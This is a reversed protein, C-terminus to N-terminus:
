LAFKKISFLVKCSKVTEMQRRQFCMYHGTGYYTEENVSYLVRLPKQLQWCSTLKIRKFVIKKENEGRRFNGKALISIKFIPIEDTCSFDIQCNKSGHQLVVVVVYM